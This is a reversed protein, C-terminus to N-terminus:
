HLMWLQKGEPDIEEYLVVPAKLLSIMSAEIPEHDRVKVGGNDEDRIAQPRPERGDILIGQL